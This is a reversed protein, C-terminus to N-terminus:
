VNPSFWASGFPVTRGLRTTGRLGSASMEAVEPQAWFEEIRREVYVAPDALASIAEYNRALGVAVAELARLSFRKAVNEPARDNPMLAADGGVRDLIDVVWAVRQMVEGIDRSTLIEVIEKDLFDQVDHKNDYDVYSHVILRSAYDMNLQSTVNEQNLRFVRIFQESNAFSKIESTFEKNALVMSCTRVEQANAYAGGRNLRQFLDFKTRHDSPHKLVQFEVRSRRLFLQLSKDISNEDGENWVVGELESLYKTSALRSPPLLEDTDPDRLVGMFELISSIRQLGDILEWTGDATEFVFVSPIPIGILISEILASKKDIGWRFLRQFDPIIDLEKNNYMTVIEGITIQVSDTNVLIKASEVQDKLSM